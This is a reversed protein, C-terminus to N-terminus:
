DPNIGIKREGHVDVSVFGIGGIDLGARLSKDIGDLTSLGFEKGAGIRVVWALWEVM